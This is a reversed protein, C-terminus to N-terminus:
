PGIAQAAGDAPRARAETCQTSRCSAPQHARANMVIVRDALALIEDLESSVVCCRAAPTACARAAPRPHVRDRRHRRRADAPRGAARQPQQASSRAGAGAEAPQRRLLKACRLAPNRPRVDFREMMTARDAACGRAPADLRPPQLAAPRQYGLVASEWAAFAMVLAAGHRDEPVHAIGCRRAGHAPRALAGAHLTAAGVDCSAPAAAGAARRAGRAAREPRQGVRRRHRRDRRRAADADVDHLRPVGLADRVVCAAAGRLLVDGASRRRRGARARHQVQRGVMAEALATSRLHRRDARGHVVRGARM